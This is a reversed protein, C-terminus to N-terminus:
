QYRLDYAKFNASAFYRAFRQAAEIMLNQARVTQAENADALLSVDLALALALEKDSLHRYMM